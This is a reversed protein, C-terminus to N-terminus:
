FKYRLQFLLDTMSSADVQQLGSSIVARDFYDTVGIKTTLMFRRGLDARAVLAYRLGHGYYAPFSFDYLVSREYQYLRADYDDSRFWGVHASLQLWDRQWAAQQSLMLGRSVAATSPVSLVVGDLQTQLTLAAKGAPLEAAFRLRARHEHRNLLHEHGADDRQRLHFRYHAYLTCRNIYVRARLMTDFADSPASVQYRLYPFHAYDAYWQVSLARLPQWAVALYAGHENQVSSGESFSHAHLATYRKDYYRHLLMLSLQPSFRYALSHVTAWAGNRSVATEGSLAVRSNTFGYDLSANLFDNGDLAYLRYPAGERRPEVLRDFRTYVVNLSVAGSGGCASGRWGVSGGFDAEHTNNKKEMEAATRHYGSTLLTRVTGDSNLTADVPRYSAFATAQWRPALRVTAAAGQLYNAATRSAHATLTRTSRGFSQLTAVKGLHFGTNMLLGMGMQVRYMGLNLAELRGMKRLQFYYSYHDYGWPNDRTLFPEGADQSATLGFRVRDGYVFQYRVDHRYPYGLYCNKGDRDGRRKYLPAKLTATLQQRGGKLVEELTPWVRQSPMDGVYVFHCLLRRTYWDLSTIMFLESLSRVPAYRDVYAMLEEVQPASLFPLRELQERTLQNLNLKSDAYEALVEMTEDSYDEDDVGEATVWEQLAQEWGQESQAFLAAPLWCWLWLLIRKM